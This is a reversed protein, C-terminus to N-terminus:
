WGPLEEEDELEEEVEETQEEDAEETEPIAEGQGEEGPALEREIHSEGSPPPAGEPSTTPQGNKCGVIALASCLLMSSTTKTNM